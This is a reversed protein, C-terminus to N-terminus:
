SNELNKYRGLSKRKPFMKRFEEDADWSDDSFDKEEADDEGSSPNLPVRFVLFGANQPLWKPVLCNARIERPDSVLRFGQGETEKKEGKEQAKKADQAM